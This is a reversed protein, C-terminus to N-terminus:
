LNSLRAFVESIHVCSKKYERQEVVRIPSQANHAAPQYLVCFKM